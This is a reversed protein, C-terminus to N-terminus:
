KKVEVVLMAYMGFAPLKGDTGVSVPRDGERLPESFECSAGRLDISVGEVKKDLAYNVLHVAIRGDALTRYEAFVHPPLGHFEVPAKYGVSMLDAM